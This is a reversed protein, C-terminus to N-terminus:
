STKSFIKKLQDGLVSRKLPKPLVGASMALADHAEEVNSYSSIVVVPIGKTLSDKKLMGIMEIGSTEPMRLDMTVLDPHYAKSVEVVNEGMNLIKSECGFSECFEAIMEAIPSEDDIILIRKKSM